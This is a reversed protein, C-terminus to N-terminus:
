GRTSEFIRVVSSEWTAMSIARVWRLYLSRDNMPGLPAHTAGADMLDRKRCVSPQAWLDAASQYVFLVAM